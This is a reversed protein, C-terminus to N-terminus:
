KCIQCLGTTKDIENELEELEDLYEYYQYISNSHNMCPDCDCCEDGYYDTCYNSYLCYQKSPSYSDNVLLVRLGVDSAEFELCADQNYYLPVKTTYRYKRHSRGGGIFWERQVLTSRWRFLDEITKYIEERTKDIDM